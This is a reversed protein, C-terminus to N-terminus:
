IDLILSGCRTVDAMMIGASREIRRTYLFDSYLSVNLQEYTDDVFLQILEWLNDDDTTDHHYKKLLAYTQEEAKLQDSLGKIMRLALKWNVIDKSMMLQNIAELQKDTM